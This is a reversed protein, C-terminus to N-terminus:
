MSGKFVKRLRAFANSLYGKGHAKVLAKALEHESAYLEAYNRCGTAQITIELKADASLKGPKTLAYRIAANRAVLAYLFPLTALVEPRQTHQRLYDAAPAVDLGELVCALEFAEQNIGQIWLERETTV